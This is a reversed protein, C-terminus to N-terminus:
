VSDATPDGSMVVDTLRLGKASLTMVMKVDLEDADPHESMFEKLRREVDMLQEDSLGDSFYDSM